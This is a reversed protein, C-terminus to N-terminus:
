PPLDHPVRQATAMWSELLIAAAVQDVDTKAIRKRAGAARQRKLRSYAEVSSFAEDVTHVPLKFRARLTRCFETIRDAMVHTRADHTKPMGVVFADPEWEAVLRAITNWDTAHRRAELTALPNATGTTSQGVAVGIRREGFDFGLLTATAHKSSPHEPM